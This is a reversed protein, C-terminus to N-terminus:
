LRQYDQRFTRGFQPFRKIFRLTRCEAPRLGLQALRNDSSSPQRKLWETWTRLQWFISLPVLYTARTMHTQTVFM